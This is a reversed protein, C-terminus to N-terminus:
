NGITTDRKFAPASIPGTTAYKDAQDSSPSLRTSATSSGIKPTFTVPTRKTDLRNNGGIIPKIARRSQFVYVLDDVFDEILRKAKWRNKVGNCIVTVILPFANNHIFVYGSFGVANSLTGTKGRVTFRNRKWMRKLTGDRGNRALSGIFLPGKVPKKFIRYLVRGFAAPSAANTRSLGSGSTIFLERAPIGVSRLFRNIVVTGKHSSGPEGSIVAGIDRTLVEAMFNNSYTNLGRLLDPLSRPHCYFITSSYKNPFKRYGTVVGKERFAEGIVRKLLYEPYPYNIRTALGLYRRRWIKGKVVLRYRGKVRKLAASVWNNKKRSVTIVKNIVPIKLEDPSVVIRAKNGCRKGPYVHIYLSNFNVSVPSVLPNYPRNCKKDICVREVSPKFYSNDIIVSGAIKKLRYFDVFRRVCLSYDSTFFLPNGRSFIRISGNIKGNKPFPGKIGTEFIYDVGM